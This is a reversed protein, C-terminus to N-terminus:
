ATIPNRRQHIGLLLGIAIFTALIHSGGYSMLPLPIGTIPMLHVTMGINVFVQYGLMAVIAGAVLQEVPTAAEAVARLGRWILLAFLLIIGGGGVFGLMEATVAFIFDTHHEPLFDNITQTAGDPGKGFAGGSGIAIQSQDLQFGTDGADADSEVFATLRDRQYDELVQVGAAPLIVLVAAVVFALAAGAVALHSWPAGALFLVTALIVGYVTATGLDPQLLVLGIPVAAVGALLLSLGTTSAVNRREVALSALAVILVVKGAESPQVNFPGVDFWSSSGRVDGATVAVVILALATLWFAPWAIRGLRAPTLRAALAMLVLGALVYALQRSFYFGPSGPIDDETSARLVFLGIGTIGLVAFLMLWDLGAAEERLRAAV